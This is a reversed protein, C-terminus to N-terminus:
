KVPNRLLGLGEIEIEVVDGPKLLRKPERFYGVGDPTGTCIIDGPFLTISQCIFSIIDPIKFIMESTNSDQVLHGNLRTQITLNDPDSIEDRTALYPGIPCFTDFSKARVWQRDTHQVDRASVDNAITFGAVHDWVDDPKIRSTERGIVVALEAEYDVEHSVEPDWTINEGPGIMASPFKAFIIISKPIPINQERCHDAYNLGIGIVKSVNSLPAKLIIDHVSIQLDPDDNVTRVWEVVRQIEHLIDLGGQLFRLLNEPFKTSIKDVSEDAEVYARYAKPLDIVIDDELVGFHDLGHYEYTILKMEM